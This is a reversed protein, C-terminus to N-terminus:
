IVLPEPELQVGFRSAVTERIRMALDWIQAGTAAGFNVLVLSHLESVGADGERIGKFGCNEILWAASLKCRGDCNSFSPLAPYDGRLKALYDLPVVPNKFFSGANGLMATDPLKRRRLQEVAHSVQLPEPKSIGMAALQERVGAYELKLARHQVFRFEVALVIYRQPHQKFISDRYAFQCAANNLRIVQQSHCDLYEVTEVFESVEIGYAGINQVPAAGVTGPISSLNELGNLNRRLSWRVFDDWKEGAAVRVLTSEPGSQLVQIGRTALHIILGDFDRTFLVNSGDGLVMFPRGQAQPLSLLEPLVACDWVDAFWAARAPVRFTTRMALPENQVIRCSQLVEASVVGHTPARGSDHEPPSVQVQVAEEM